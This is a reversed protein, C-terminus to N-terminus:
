KNKEKETANKFPEESFETIFRPRVNKTNLGKKTTITAQSNTRFRMAVYILTYLIVMVIGTILGTVQGPIFPMSMLIIIMSILAIWSTFPYGPMQCKGEPPCGNRKRFRIHSAIIIAYTFLLAFGGSTILVLYVRPFLLGFGLGVLMALGSFLIGRYPVEREDKLWRPAHGENTLSRIMRGLGFIAALMASLIATILVLNIATGAWGIGWRDLSAVMPSINENLSATPILPLLVAAYLIYLGVLLIVTYRIAKPITKRPNEAESAALGIVEFGAYAFIVLLMSGAIGKIGGPMLPENGLEGTGVASTGPFVGFILVLATIIFFVITFFKIGSLGSELKGLKNAGLLNLLTVGIIILSGLIAISINPFWVRLLTSIATAESSMSLVIGTWYLWGTVFGAGEGLQQAAFTSFSGVTPNAVTMESLAYLIFYVLVGGLIYSILISPGAAHIAVSSGLFFSGGIVSGIAMMTLQWASLGKRTKEM